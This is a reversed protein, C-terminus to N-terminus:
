KQSNYLLSFNTKESSPWAKALAYTCFSDVLYALLRDSKRQTRDYRPFPPHQHSVDIVDGMRVRPDQVSSPVMVEKGKLNEFECTDAEQEM